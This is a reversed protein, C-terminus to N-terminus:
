SIELLIIVFVCISVIMIYIGAKTINEEEPFVAPSYKLSFRAILLLMTAILLVILFHIM